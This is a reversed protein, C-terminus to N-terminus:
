EHEVDAQDQKRKVICLECYPDGDLVNKVHICELEPNYSSFKAQDVFCYMRGLEAKGKKIWIDALPCFHVRPNRQGDPYCILEKEWGLKPLDPVKGFNQAELPLGMEQVGKRVEEGCETGYNLIAKSILERGKEEGLEEIIADSFHLYLLALRRATTIVEANAEKLPIMKETM